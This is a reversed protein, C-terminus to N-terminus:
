TAGPRRRHGRYAAWNLPTSHDDEQSNVDAGHDLLCQVVDRHGSEAICIAIANQESRRSCRCGCRASALSTCDPSSRCIIGLTVCDWSSWGSCKRVQPYKLLLHEVLERFGCLAAYYLPRAGPESRAHGFDHHTSMTCGSGRKSTPNTQILSVNWGMASGHAVNEVQAHTVWHEAAYKALPTTDASTISTPIGSYFVLVLRPLCRTHM